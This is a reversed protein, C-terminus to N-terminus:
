LSVGLPGRTLQFSAAGRRHLQPTYRRSAVEAVLHELARGRTQIPEDEDAALDLDRRHRAVVNPDSSVQLLPIMPHTQLPADGLQAIMVEVGTGGLGSIAELPNETPAEMIHLGPTGAPEGYALTPMWEDPRALFAQRFGQHRALDANDAIVVTAGALVWGRILQAGEPTPELVLRHGELVTHSLHLVAGRHEIACGAELRRTAIAANDGPTPIRAVAALSQIAPPAM